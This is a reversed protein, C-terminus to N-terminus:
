KCYKSVTSAYKILSTSKYNGDGGIIKGVKSSKIFSTFKENLEYIDTIIVLHKANSAKIDRILNDIKNLGSNTCVSKMNGVEKKIENFSYLKLKSGFPCTKDIARVFRERDCTANFIDSDVNRMTSSTDIWVELGRQKKSFTKGNTKGCYLDFYNGTSCDIVERDLGGATEFEDKYEYSNDLQADATIENKKYLGYQPDFCYEGMPQCEMARALLHTQSKVKLAKELYTTKATMSQLFVVELSKPMALVCSSILSLLLLVRM